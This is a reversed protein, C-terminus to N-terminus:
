GGSTPTASTAEKGDAFVDRIPLGADPWVRSQICALALWTYSVRQSEAIAKFERWLAPPLDITLRHPQETM